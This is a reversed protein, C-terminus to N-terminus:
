LDLDELTLNRAGAKDTLTVAYRRTNDAPTAFGLVVRSREGGKIGAPRDDRVSATLLNDVGMQRVSAEGLAWLTGAERNELELVIFTWHFLRYSQQLRVYVFNQKRNVGLNRRILAPSQAEGLDSIVTTLVEKAAAGTRADQLEDRCQQLREGLVQPSDSALLAGLKREITVRADFSETGGQVEFIVPPGDSLPIFLAVRREPTLSAPPTFIVINGTLQGAGLEPPVQIPGALPGPLLLWTPQGAAVRLPHVDRANGDTIVLTRTVGLPQKPQGVAPESRVKAPGVALLMCVSLLPVTM